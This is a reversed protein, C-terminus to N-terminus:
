TRFTVEVGFLGDLSEIHWRLFLWDLFNACAGVCLEVSLLQQNGSVGAVLACTKTEGFSMWGQGELAIVVFFHFCKCM